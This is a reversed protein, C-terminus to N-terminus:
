LADCLVLGAAILSLAYAMYRVRHHQGGWLALLCAVDSFARVALALFDKGHLWGPWATFGLVIRIILLTRAWLEGLWLFLALGADILLTIWGPWTTDRLIFRGIADAAVNIALCVVAARLKANVPTLAGSADRRERWMPLIKRLFSRAALAPPAPQYSSM